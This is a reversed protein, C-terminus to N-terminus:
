WRVMGEGGVVIVEGKEEGKRKFVFFFEGGWVGVFGSGCLGGGVLWVLVFGWFGFFGKRDSFSHKGGRSRDSSRGRKVKGM